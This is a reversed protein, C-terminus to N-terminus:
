AISSFKFRAASLQFRSSGIRVSRSFGAGGSDIFQAQDRDRRIRAFLALQETRDTGTIDSLRDSSCATIHVLRFHTQRLTRQTFETLELDSYLHM